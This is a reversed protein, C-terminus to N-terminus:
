LYKCLISNFPNEEVGKCQGMRITSNMESASALGGVWVCMSNSMSM